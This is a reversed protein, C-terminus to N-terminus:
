PGMTWTKTPAANFRPVAATLSASGSGGSTALQIDATGTYTLSNGLSDFFPISLDEVLTASTQMVEYVAFGTGAAVTVKTLVSQAATTPAPNPVTVTGSALVAYGSISGNATNVLPVYSPIWIDGNSPENFTVMLRTGAFALGANNINTTLQDVGAVFNNAGSIAFTKNYFGNETGSSVGAVNSAINGGIKFSSAFNERFSVGSSKTSGECGTLLGGLSSGVVQNNNNINFATAMVVMQVNSPVTLSYGLANANVRVNTIRLTRTHGVGPPDIPVGLFIMQNPGSQRGQYLNAPNINQADGALYNAGGAAGVGKMTCGTSTCYRLNGATTATGAPEDILLLAESWDGPAGAAMLMQSTANTNVFVTINGAPVNMGNGTPTGGTCTVVYDAVLESFGDARVMPTSAASANCTLPPGQAHALPAGLLLIILIRIKM